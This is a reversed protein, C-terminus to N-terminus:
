HGVCRREDFRHPKPRREFFDRDIIPQSCRGWLRANGARGPDARRVLKGPIGDLGHVGHPRDAADASQQRPPAFHRRDHRDVLGAQRHRDREVVDRRSTELTMVVRGQFPALEFAQDAASLDGMQAGCGPDGLYQSALTSPVPEESGEFGPVALHDVCHSRGDGDAVPPM